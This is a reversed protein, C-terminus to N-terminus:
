DLLFYIWNCYMCRKVILNHLSQVSLASFSRLNTEWSAEITGESMDMAHVSIAFAVSQIHWQFHLQSCM